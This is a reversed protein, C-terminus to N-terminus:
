DRTPDLDANADVLGWAAPLSPPALEASDADIEAVSQLRFQPPTGDPTGAARIEVPLGWAASWCIDTAPPRAGAGAAAIRSLPAEPPRAPRLRVWACRPGDPPVPRDPLWELRAGAQPPALVHALTTWNVFVGIRMLNGRDVEVMAQRRADLVQLRLGGTAQPDASVYLDLRADTRRHLRQAGDRWVALRHARGDAGLYTAEFRVREPARATPFAQAWTPPEVAAAAHAAGGCASLAAAAIAAACAPARVPRGTM